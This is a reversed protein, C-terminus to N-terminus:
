VEPEELVVSWASPGGLKERRRRRCERCFAGLNEPSKLSITKAGCLARFPASTLRGFEDQVSLAWARTKRPPRVRFLHNMTSGSYGMADEHAGMEVAHCHAWVWRPERKNRPSAGELDVLALLRAADREHVQRKIAEIRASDRPKPNSPEELDLLLSRREHARARAAAREAELAEISGARALQQKEYGALGRALREPWSLKSRRPM